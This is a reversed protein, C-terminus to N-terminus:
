LGKRKLEAKSPFILVQKRNEPSFENYGYGTTVHPFQERMASIQEITAPKNLKYYYAVTQAGRKIIGHAHYEIGARYLSQGHFM